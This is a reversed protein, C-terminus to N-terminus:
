RAVVDELREGGRGSGTRSRAAVTLTILACPRALSPPTTTAWRGWPADTVQAPLGHRKEAFAKQGRGRGRHSSPCGFELEMKLAEEEPIGRPKVSGQHGRRRAARQSRHSPSPWHTRWPRADPVVRGILGIEKAEQRCRGATVSDHGGHVPDAACACRPAGLPFLGSPEFVGFKASEGAVRIDTAQLIETRRCPGARV